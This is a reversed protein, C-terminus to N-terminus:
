TARIDMEILPRLAATVHQLVSGIDGGADIRHWTIPGTSTGLQERVVGADADSADRERRRVRDLLVAEPAELWLGVFPVSALRAVDEIAARDEPRAFVADAIAAHSAGVVASREALM